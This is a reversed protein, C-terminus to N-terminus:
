TKRAKIFRVKGFQDQRMEIETYGQKCLMDSLEQVYLPNIEFYLMGGPMLQKTGYLSIARYFLLPDNDPVFLALHPEYDLVRSEMDKKEKECIYPPNSVIVSWLLSPDHTISPSLINHEEFSVTVGLQEPNKRAITLADPSVDWASVTAEPHEAALTCAICGSGTGIDLIKGQGADVWRCLKYTEPRPILAGPAIHFTRPGFEARGIVYQVPVGKLLQERIPQLEQEGPMTGCLIDAMSLGFRVELVLRAIAQAEGKDYVATLSRWFDAYTM